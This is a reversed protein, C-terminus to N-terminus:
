KRWKDENSDLVFVVITLSVIIAMFPAISLREARGAILAACLAAWIRDGMTMGKM